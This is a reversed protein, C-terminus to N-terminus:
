NCYNQFWWGFCNSSVADDEGQPPPPPPQQQEEQADVDVTVSENADHTNRRRWQSLRTPLRMPPFLFSFDLFRANRAEAM